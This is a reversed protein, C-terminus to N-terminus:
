PLAPPTVAFRGALSHLYDLLAVGKLSNMETNWGARLGHMVDRRNLTTNAPPLKRTDERLTSSM